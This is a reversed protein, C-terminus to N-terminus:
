RSSSATPAVGKAKISTGISYFFVTTQGQCATKELYLRSFASNLFFALGLVSSLFFIYGSHLGWVSFIQKNQKTEGRSLRAQYWDKPLIVSFLICTETLLSLILALWCQKHFICRTLCVQNCQKFKGIEHSFHTIGKCNDKQLTHLQLM